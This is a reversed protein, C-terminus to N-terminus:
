AYFTYNRRTVGRPWYFKLSSDDSIKDSGSRNYRNRKPMRFYLKGDEYKENYCQTWPANECSVDLIEYKKLHVMVIKFLPSIRSFAKMNNFSVDRWDVKEELNFFDKQSLFKEFQQNDMGM